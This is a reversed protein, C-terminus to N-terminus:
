GSSARPNMQMPEAKKLSDFVSPSHVAIGSKELIKIADDAIRKVESEKLPKYQASPRLGIDKKVTKKTM